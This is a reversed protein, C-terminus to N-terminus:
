PVFLTNERISRCLDIFRLDERYWDKLNIIAEDDLATDLNGPSRHANIDDGPLNANAHCGLMSKLIEFDDTLQEQFGVFFLDPLRSKFYDESEFWTWYSSKVHHICKMAM